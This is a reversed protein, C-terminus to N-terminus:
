PTPGQATPPTCSVQPGASARRLDRWVPGALVRADALHLALAEDVTAVPYGTWGM